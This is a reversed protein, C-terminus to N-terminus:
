GFPTKVFNQDIVGSWSIVSRKGPGDSNQPPRARTIM